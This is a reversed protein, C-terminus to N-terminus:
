CRELATGVLEPVINQQDRLLTRTDLLVWQDKVLAIVPPDGARLSQELRAASVHVPRIAVRSGPLDGLPLAGGGVRGSGKEIQVSALGALRGEIAKALSVAEEHLQESSKEIMELTPIGRAPGEPLTYQELTAELAALTLKDMRLARALPDKKMRELIERRGVLIGAQPGGLLKDGSFSVVDIGRSVADQVTLEEGFGYKSLDVLCGSGLDMMTLVNKEKGIAALEDLDVERTFGAIHYNSPHVKLILATRDNIAELYDRPHTRNTTGVERLIAGSRAMVDPIRFSGGIEILEGRSVVVERGSAVSSLALLVAAANNNVVLAAEAGTLEEILLNLHANREGREGKELDYELNSYSTAIRSIRDMVHQSLPSRGLNTHIIVGTANIVQKLKPGLRKQALECARALIAQPSCESIGAKGQRIDDRLEELALRIVRKVLEESYQRKLQLFSSDALLKDVSPIARFSASPSSEKM